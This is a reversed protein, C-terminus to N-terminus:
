YSKKWDEYVKNLSKLFSELSHISKLANVESSSLVKIYYKGTSNNIFGIGIQKAAVIDDKYLAWYVNNSLEASEKISSGLIERNPSSVPIVAVDDDNYVFYVDDFFIWSSNIFGATIRMDNYGAVLYPVIYCTRSITNINKYYVMTKGTLPNTSYTLNSLLLSNSEIINKIKRSSDDAPPNNQQIYAKSFDLLGNYDGSSIMDTFKKRNNIDSFFDNKRQKVTVKCGFKVDNILAYIYCEGPANATIRCQDKSSYDVYAINENSSLWEVRQTTSSISIYKSQEPTLTLSNYDLKPNEVYFTGVFRHYKMEVYIKVYGSGVATIIGSPTVTAVTNDDSQYTITGYPNIIRYSTKQGVVLKDSSQEVFPPTLPYDSLSDNDEYDENPEKKPTVVVKCYFNKGSVNASVTCRGPRIGNIRGNKVTAIKKNTTKWAVKQKTGNLRITKSKGVPVSINKSSITPVEVYIKCNYKKKGIKATITVTGKKKASVKGKQTVTAVSRKSTTWKAKKKTGTLKLRTSTGKALRISKKSIKVAAQATIINYTLPIIDPIVLSLTIALLFIFVIRKIQKM